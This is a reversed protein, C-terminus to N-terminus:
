DAPPLLTAFWGEPVDFAEGEASIAGVSVTLRETAPEAQDGDWCAFLEIPGAAAVNEALYHSLQAVSERGFDDDDGGVGYKFGCSCGSHSGLFYVHPKTFQARVGEDVAVIPEVSFAAPPTTQAIVPLPADAAAYFMMCM